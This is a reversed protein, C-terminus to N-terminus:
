MLMRPAIYRVLITALQLQGQLYTLWGRAPAPQGVLNDLMARRALRSGAGRKRVSVPSPACFFIM